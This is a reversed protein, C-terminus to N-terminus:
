LHLGPWPRNIKRYTKAHGADLTPLVADAAQLEERVETLYLLSGNTIVAVPLDTLQKVERIMQGIGSHLTTEGSGVFTIWDIEGPQLTALAARV